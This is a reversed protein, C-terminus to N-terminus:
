TTNSAISATLAPFLAHYKLRGAVLVELASLTAALPTGFLGAFGTAIGVLLFTNVPNRFPLKQGIWHSLTAGIQMTVDERSVSGGFLYTIWTDGMILLILHPSIVNKRDLGVDFVLSM